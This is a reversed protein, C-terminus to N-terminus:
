DRGSPREYFEGDRIADERDRDIPDDFGYPDNEDMANINLTPRRIAQGLWEETLAVQLRQDMSCFADVAIGRRALFQQWTEREPRKASERLMAGLGQIPHQESM